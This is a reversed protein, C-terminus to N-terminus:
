SQFKEAFPVKPNFGKAILWGMLVIMFLGNQSYFHFSVDVDFINLWSAVFVLSIALMGWVSLFRPILKSKFLFYYFVFTAAAFLILCMFHAWFYEQIMSLGLTNYHAKDLVESKVFEDSLSLLTLHTINSSVLTALQVLWIGVIWLALSNKYAKVLPFVLIAIILWLSNALIDLLMSFRMSTANEYIHNLFDPSEALSVSLGRFLVSPIGVAMLSFLLVGVIRGTNKISKM